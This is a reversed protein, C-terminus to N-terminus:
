RAGPHSRAPHGIRVAVTDAHHLLPEGEPQPLGTAAVLRDDCRVLEARRLPWPEHWATACRRVRGAGFVVWRATLWHDLAGLEDPRFPAGVDVEVHSTAGRPGPLHRRCTYTVRAGDVEVRMRSWCYPVRYAARGVAVVGLRSADLSFFWVGTGGSADRVYTRVNTEPFRGAWPVSSRGPLSVDMRFPVLGVWAVGDRADVELDSPLLRQVVAPEYAWHLFTLTSWRNDMAAREVVWPCVAPDPAPPVDAV